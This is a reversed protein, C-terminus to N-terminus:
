KQQNNKTAAHFLPFRVKHRDHKPLPWHEVRMQWDTARQQWCSKCTV